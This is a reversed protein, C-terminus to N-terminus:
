NVLTSRCVVCVRVKDWHKLFTTLRGTKRFVFSILRITHFVIIFAFLVLLSIITSLLYVLNYDIYFFPGPAM